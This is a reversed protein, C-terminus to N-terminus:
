PHPAVESPEETADGTPDPGVLGLDELFRPQSKAVCEAGGLVIGPVALGLVGFAFAARHDGRCAVRGGHLERGHIVIVDDAQVRVDAGLALLGACLTAIRDSEKARTPAAGRIRTTGEATAALVGLLFLLDTPDTLDVDGAGRLRGGDARVRASGDDTVGVEAGMRGLIDLLAVDAQISGAGLGPIWAEGGVLAAASWWAAAASADPPITVVDARLPTRGVRIRPAQGTLGTAEVDAGFQELLDLTMRLYPLSTSRGTLRLDLGQAMRPAILLLASAYQSSLSPDLVVQGGALGGGLVRLAGSSRRKVRAGLGILAKRLIRHPRRLLGPRGRLLTRARAPRLTALATCFRLGTAGDGLDLTLPGRDAGLFGAPSWRGMRGVAEATRLADEGPPRAGDARELRAVDDALAALVLARQEYSKSAPVHRPGSLPRCAPAVHHDM